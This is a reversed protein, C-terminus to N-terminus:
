GRPCASAARDIREPREGSQKSLVKGRLDPAWLATPDSAMHRTAQRM